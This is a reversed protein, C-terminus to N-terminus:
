RNQGAGVRQRGTLAPALGGHPPRALSHRRLRCSRLPLRPFTSAAFRQSDVDSRRHFYGTCPVTWPIGQRRVEVYSQGQFLNQYQGVAETPLDIRAKRGEPRYSLERRVFTFRIVNIPREFGSYVAKNFVPMSIRPRRQWKPM